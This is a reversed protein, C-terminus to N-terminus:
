TMMRCIAVMEEESGSGGEWIENLFPLNGPIQEQKSLYRLAAQAGAAFHNPQIGQSLCLRMAGILRDNWGLKRRPDRIVREVQDRLWPNLMRKMLDEVYTKFGDPTFLPDIGAYKKVLAVGSEELFAAHALASLEEPADSM